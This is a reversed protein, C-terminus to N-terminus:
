GHIRIRREEVIWLRHKIPERNLLEIIRQFTSIIHYKEQHHVRMVIIGSYRHPPYAFIDAFDLDLTILIRSEKQCINIITNDRSGSLNEDEVTVADYGALNLIDAIEAPLNEDIKFKMM